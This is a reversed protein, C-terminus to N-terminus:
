AAARRRKWATVGGWAALVGGLLPLAAPIPVESTSINGAYGATAGGVGTFQAYYNGIDLVASGAMGQCLPVQCPGAPVPGIVELDDATLLLDDAGYSWVSASFNAIFDSAAAFTNVVSAITIHQLGGVLQFLVEETFAGGAATASEFNGQSSNPNIGLNDITVASAPAMSMGLLAAAAATARLGHMNTVM